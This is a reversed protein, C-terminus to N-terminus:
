EGGVDSTKAKAVFCFLKANKTDLSTLKYLKSNLRLLFFGIM